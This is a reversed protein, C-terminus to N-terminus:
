DSRGHTTSWELNAPVKPAWGVRWDTDIALVSSQYRVAHNQHKECRLSPPGEPELGEVATAPPPREAQIPEVADSVLNVEGLGRGQQARLAGAAAM